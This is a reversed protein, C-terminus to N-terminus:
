CCDINRQSPASAKIVKQRAQRCQLGTQFMGSSGSTDVKAAAVQVKTVTAESFGRIALLTQAFGGLSVCLLLNM